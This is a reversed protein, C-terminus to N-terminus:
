CGGQQELCSCDKTSNPDIQDPPTFANVRLKATCTSTCTDMSTFAECIQKGAHTQGRLVFMDPKSADIHTVQLAPEEDHRVAPAPADASRRVSKQFTIPEASAVRKQVADKALGMALGEVDVHIKPAAPAVIKAAQRGLASVKGGLSVARDRLSPPHCAAFALLSIALSKRM